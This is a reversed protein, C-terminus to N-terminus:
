HKSAIGQPPHRQETPADAEAPVDDHDRYAVTPLTEDGYDDPLVPEGVLAYLLVGLSSLGFSALLGVAQWQGFFIDGGEGRVHSGFGLIDAMGALSAFLLGTMALRIGIQQWLNASVQLYFTFKVYIIAGITLLAYGILLMSVQVIGIGATPEVGTMGPFLGMLALVVGLAGIAIGVQAFRTM